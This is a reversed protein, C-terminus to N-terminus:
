KSRGEMLQAYYASLTEGECRIEDAATSVVERLKRFLLARGVGPPVTDVLVRALVHTAMRIANVREAQGAQPPRDAFWHDIDENTDEEKVDFNINVTMDGDGLKAM